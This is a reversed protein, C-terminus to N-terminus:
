FGKMLNEYFNDMDEHCKLEPVPLNGNLAKGIKEVMEDASNYLYEEPLLEPYSLSNKAIPICGHMVADVIQYGFTEENATIL